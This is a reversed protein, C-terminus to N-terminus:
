VQLPAVLCFRDTDVWRKVLVFWKLKINKHCQSITFAYRLGVM